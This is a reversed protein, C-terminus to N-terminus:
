EEPDRKPNEKQYEGRKEEEFDEVTDYENEGDDIYTTVPQPDIFVTVNCCNSEFVPLGGTTGYKDDVKTGLATSIIGELSKGNVMLGYGNDTVHANTFAIKVM